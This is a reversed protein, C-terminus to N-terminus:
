GSWFVTLSLTRVGISLDGSFMSTVASRTQKDLDFCQVFYIRVKWTPIEVRHKESKAVSRPSAEQRWKGWGKTLNQSRDNAIKHKKAALMALIPIKIFGVVRQWRVKENEVFSKPYAISFHLDLILISNQDYHHCTDRILWKVEWCMYCSLQDISISM